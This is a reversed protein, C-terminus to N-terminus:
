YALHGPLYMPVKPSLPCFQAPRRMCDHLWSREVADCANCCSCPPSVQIQVRIMMLGRWVVIGHFVNMDKTRRFSWVVRYNIEVVTKGVHGYEMRPWEVVRPKLVHSLGGHKKGREFDCYDLGM